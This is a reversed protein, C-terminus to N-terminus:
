KNREYNKDPRKAYELVGGKGVCPVGALGGILWM